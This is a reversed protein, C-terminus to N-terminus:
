DEPWVAVACILASPGCPLGIHAHEIERLVVIYRRSHAVLELAAHGEDRAAGAADAGRDAAAQGALAGHEGRTIGAIVLGRSFKAVGEGAGVGGRHADVLAVHALRPIAAAGDLLHDLGVPARVDEDVVGADGAVLGHELHRVIVPELDEVHVQGAGEEEGLGGETVHGLAPLPRMTFTELTM